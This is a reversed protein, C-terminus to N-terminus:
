KSNILDRPIFAPLDESLDIQKVRKRYQKVTTPKLGFYQATISDALDSYTTPIGEGEEIANIIEEGFAKKLAAVRKSYETINSGKIIAYIKERECAVHAYRTKPRNHGKFALEDGIRQLNNQANWAKDKDNDYIEKRWRKIKEQAFYSALLVPSEKIHNFFDEDSVSSEHTLLLKEFESKIEHESKAGTDMWERVIKITEKDHLLPEILTKMTIEHDTRKLAEEYSEATGDDKVKQIIPVAIGGTKFKGAKSDFEPVFSIGKQNSKKM